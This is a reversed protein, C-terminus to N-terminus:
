PVDINFDTSSTQGGADKVTLKITYSGATPFYKAYDAPDITVNGNSNEKIVQGVVAEAGAPAKDITWVYDTINGASQTADLVLAEGQKITVDDAVASLAGTADAVATAAEPGTVATAAENLMAQNTPDALTTAAQSAADVAAAQNTPNAIETGAQSAASDIAAAATPDTIATAAQNVADNTAPGGCAALLLAGSLLVGSLIKRM